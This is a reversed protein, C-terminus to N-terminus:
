ANVPATTFSKQIRKLYWLSSYISRTISFQKMRCLKKVNLNISFFYLKLSVHLSLHLKSFQESNVIFTFGQFICLELIAFKLDSIKM